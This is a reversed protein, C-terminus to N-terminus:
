AQKVLPRGYESTPVVAAKPKARNQWVVWAAVHLVLFVGYIMTVIIHSLTEYSVTFPTFYEVLGEEGTFPAKPGLVLKDSRWQLDSDAFTLWQHPVVGYCWFMLAFGLTAAIIAEGWTLSAGVPRRRSYIWVAAIGVVAVLTSLIFAAM